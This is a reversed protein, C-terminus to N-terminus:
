RERSPDFKGRYAIWATMLAEGYADTVGFSVGGCTLYYGEDYTKKSLSAVQSLDVARKLKLDGANPHPHPEEFIFIHTNPM